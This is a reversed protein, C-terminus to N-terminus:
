RSAGADQWEPFHCGIPQLACARKETPSFHRSCWRWSQGPDPQSAIPRPRTGFTARADGSALEFLIVGGGSADVALCRCDPTFAASKVTEENPLVLSSLCKGTATEWISLAKGDITWALMKADASFFASPLVAGKGDKLEEAPLTLTQLPKGTAVEFLEVKATSTMKARPTVGYAIAVLKNGPAFFIDGSAYPTTSVTGLTKGTVADKFSLLRRGNPNGPETYFILGDPSAYTGGRANADAILGLDKGNQADWRRTVSDRSQTIVQKGDASFLVSNLPAAHGAPGIAAGSAVDIFHLANSRTMFLLTNGDPSHQFSSLDPDTRLNAPAKFKRLEKGKTWDWIRVLGDDGVSMLQDGRPSFSLSMLDDMDEAKLPPLERGTTLDHLLIRPGLDNPGQVEPAFFTAMTKGDRSLAVPFEQNFSVGNGQLPDQVTNRVLPIRRTEKGSPFDWVRITLDGCGGVTVVSKGDPLFSAFVIADDHRWRLTGLRVTAGTPLPYDADTEVAATQGVTNLFGLLLLLWVFFARQSPM